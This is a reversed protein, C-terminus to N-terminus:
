LLCRSLGALYADYLLEKRTGLELLTNGETRIWLGAMRSNSVAKNKPRWNYLAILFATHALIQRWRTETMHDPKFIKYIREASEGDAWRQATQENLTM